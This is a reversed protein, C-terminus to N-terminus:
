WEAGEPGQILYILGRDCGYIYRVGLRRGARVEHLLFFFFLIFPGSAVSFEWRDLCRTGNLYFPLRVKGLRVGDSADMM